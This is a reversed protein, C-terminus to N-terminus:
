RFKSLCVSPAGLADVLCSGSWRVKRTGLFGVRFVGGRLVLVGGGRLVGGRWLLVGGRFFVGGVRRVM